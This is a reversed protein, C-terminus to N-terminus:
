LRPSTRCGSVAPGAVERVRRLQRQRLRPGGDPRRLWGSSCTGWGRRTRSWPMADGLADAAFPGTAIGVVRVGDARACAIDHPTDGIVLTRERPLGRAARAIAPLAERAEADSGFAGQGAEFHHGIGARALKLRAVREFNGTV